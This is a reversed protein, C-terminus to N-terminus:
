ISSPTMKNIKPIANIMTKPAKHVTPNVPISWPCNTWMPGKGSYKIAFSKGNQATGAKTIANKGM